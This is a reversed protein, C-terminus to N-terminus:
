SKAMPPGVILHLIGQHQKNRSIEVKTTHAEPNNEGFHSTDFLCLQSILVEDEKYSCILVITKGDPSWSPQGGIGLFVTSIDNSGNGDVVHLINDDSTYAIRGTPTFELTPFPTPIPQPPAMSAIATLYMEDTIETVPKATSTIQFAPNPTASPEPTSVQQCGTTLLAIVFLIISYKNMVKSSPRM